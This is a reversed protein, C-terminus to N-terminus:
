RQISDAEGARRRLLLLGAASLLFALLAFGLDGLTPVEVVTAGGRGFGRILFNAGNPTLDDILLNEDDAPLEPVAPPGNMWFAVWSRMQSADTDLTAPFTPPTPSEAYRSIVGLYLDGETIEVPPQFDYISFSVGDNALVTRDLTALLEAGNTPDGDPDQYVALQIAAGALNADQPFLVWMQELSFPLDPSLRNFWLFPQSQAGVLGFDSEASDDDLVLQAPFDAPDPLPPQLTGGLPAHVRIQARPEQAERAEAMPAGAAGLLLLALLARAAGLVAPRPASSRSLPLTPM